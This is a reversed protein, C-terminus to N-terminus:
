TREGHTELWDQLWARASAWRRKVTRMSLGSAEAVEEITMGLTFRMEVIAAHDASVTALAEVAHHVDELRVPAPVDPLLTLMVAPTARKRSDLRRAEDILTQRALRAATALLHRRDNMVLREMQLLRIMAEHALETPQIPLRGWDRGLLRRAVARLEEYCQALLERDIPAPAPAPLSQPQYGDVTM